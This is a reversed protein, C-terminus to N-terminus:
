GETCMAGSEIASLVTAVEANSEGGILFLM